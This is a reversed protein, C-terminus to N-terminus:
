DSSAVNQNAITQESSAVNKKHVELDAGGKKLRRGRVMIVKLMFFVVMENNITLELSNFWFSWLFSFLNGIAFVKKM